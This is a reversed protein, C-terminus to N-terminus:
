NRVFVFTVWGVGWTSMTEVSPTAFEWVVIAVLVYFANFPLLYGPSGAFWRLFAKPRPPWVFVPPYEIPEEPSWDGRRGLRSDTTPSDMVDTTMMLERSRELSSSM